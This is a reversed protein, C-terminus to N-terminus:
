ENGEVACTAATATGDSLRNRVFYVGRTIRGDIRARYVTENAFAGQAPPTKRGNWLISALVRGRSDYLASEVIGGSGNKACVTLVAGNMSFTVRRSESFAMGIVNRVSLSEQPVFDRACSGEGFTVLDGTEPYRRGNGKADTFTFYYTRCATSKTQALSYTGASDSGMLLTLASKQNNIYISPNTPKGATDFYNALFTISGAPAFVHCGCVIPNSFEPKGGGLDQCWFYNYQQPGYAYGTGMERYSKNMINWRHGDCRSTGCMSLDAPVVNNQEDLLWQSMTSVPDSYGAAIDEGLTYSKNNYFLQVRTNFADGNCSNHTLGCTDAMEVAHFRSSQNLALNWYVPAVVPYNAPLLISYTSGVFQNKYQVPSMRCANTLVLIAREQWNPYGNTKDGYGSFALSVALSVLVPFARIAKM